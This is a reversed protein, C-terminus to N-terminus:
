AGLKYLVLSSDLRTLFQKCSESRATADYRSTCPSYEDGPLMLSDARVPNGKGDDLPCKM